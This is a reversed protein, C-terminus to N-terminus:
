CEASTATTKGTETQKDGEREVGEGGGNATISRKVSHSLKILKYKQQKQKQKDLKTLERSM